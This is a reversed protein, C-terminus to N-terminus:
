RSMYHPTGIIQGTMTLDSSLDADGDPRSLGFDLIKVQGREDLMVNAPKLDRHVIGARHAEALGAAM